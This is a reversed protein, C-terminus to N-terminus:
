RDGDKRSLPGSIRYTFTVPGHPWEWAVIGCWDGDENQWRSPAWFMPRGGAADLLETGNM